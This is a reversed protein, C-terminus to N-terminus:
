QKLHVYGYLSTATGDQRKLELTYYYIDNPLGDGNWTNHYNKQSFVVKGYKNVIELKNEAFDDLGIIQFYDNVGDGNPTFINPVFLEAKSLNLMYAESWVYCGQRNVVKVTYTGTDIYSLNKIPFTTGEVDTYLTNKYWGYQEAAEPYKVLLNYDLGAYLNSQSSIIEPQKPVPHETITLSNSIASRCGNEGIYDVAYQGAEGALYTDAIEGPIEDMKKGNGKYWQFIGRDESQVFLNAFEGPCFTSSQAAIVPTGPRQLRTIAVPISSDTAWCLKQNRVRVYYYGEKTAVYAPAVENPIKAGDKYWQYDYNSNYEDDATVAVSPQLKVSITDGPCIATPNAAIVTPTNPLRIIEITKTDHNPCGNPATYTYTVVAEGQHVDAPIFKGDPTCGWGSFKGGAPEVSSFERWDECARTSTFYVRPLGLVNLSAEGLEVSKCGWNNVIEVAYQGVDSTQANFVQYINSSSMYITDLVRGNRKFWRYTGAGTPSVKMTADHGECVGNLPEVTIGPTPPLARINVEVPNSAAASRCGHEDTVFLYYSARKGVTRNDNAQVVYYSSTSADSQLSDNEYWEYEYSGAPSTEASLTVPSGCSERAGSAISVTPRTRIVVEKPASAASSCGENSVAEAKYKASEVQTIFCTDDTAFTM